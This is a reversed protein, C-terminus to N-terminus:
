RCEKGVRREESRSRTSATLTRPTAAVRLCTLSRSVGPADTTTSKSCGLAMALPLLLVFADSLRM